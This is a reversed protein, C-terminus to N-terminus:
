ATVEQVDPIRLKGSMLRPLLTDRIEGLQQAQFDNTFIQELIPDVVLNWANLVSQSPVTTLLRKLDSVTVHGLGTTQKHGAIQTFVPKFHRLTM